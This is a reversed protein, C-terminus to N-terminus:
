AAARLPNASVPAEVAAALESLAAAQLLQIRKDRLRLWGRSEFRALVRCVTETALRLYSGIERRTMPLRLLDGQGLRERLHLLFAAVRQDATFDGSFSQALRLERQTQRFLHHALAADKPLQQQLLRADTGCLQAGGVAAVAAVTTSGGLADLGILDGTFHFARIHENGDRDVTYTKVCGARVSLVTTIAEGAHQLPAAGPLQPPMQRMTAQWRPSVDPQKGLCNPVPCHGCDPALRPAPALDFAM